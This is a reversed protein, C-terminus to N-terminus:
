LILLILYQNTVSYSNNTCCYSKWIVCFFCLCCVKQNHSSWSTSTHKATISCTWSWWSRKRRCARGFTNCAATTLISGNLLLNILFDYYTINLSLTSVIRKIGQRREVLARQLLSRVGDMLVGGGSSM